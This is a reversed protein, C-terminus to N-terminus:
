GEARPLSLRFRCGEGPRSEISVSGGHGDMVHRVLALGIGVGHVNLDAAHRGRYFKEFIREQEDLPVGPGRDQVDVCAVADAATCTVVV